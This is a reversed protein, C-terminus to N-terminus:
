GRVAHRLSAGVAVYGSVTLHNKPAYALYEEGLSRPLAFASIQALRIAERRVAGVRSLDTVVFSRM